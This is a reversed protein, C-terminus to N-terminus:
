NSTARRVVMLCSSHTGLGMAACLQAAQKAERELAAVVRQDIPMPTLQAALQGPTPPVTHNTARDM